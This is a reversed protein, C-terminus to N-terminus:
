STIEVVAMSLHKKRFSAMGGRERRSDLASRECKEAFSIDINPKCCGERGSKDSGQQGKSSCSRGKGKGRWETSEESVSASSEGWEGSM